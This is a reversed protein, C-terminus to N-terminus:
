SNFLVALRNSAADIDSDRQKSSWIVLYTGSPASGAKLCLKSMQSIAHSGGTWKFPLQKTVFCATKMGGLGSLGEMYKKMPLALSFAQVPSAFLVADYKAPDPAKTITISSAGKGPDGSFEVRDIVATHGSSDLSSKIKETVALTHGTLSYVIIGINM